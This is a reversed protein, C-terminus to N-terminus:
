AEPEKIMAARGKLTTPLPMLRDLGLLQIDAYAAQVEVTISSGASTSDPDSPNMTVSVAASAIGSNALVTSVRDQVSAVTAGSLAAERAGERAAHDLQISKLVAWGYEVGTFVVVMLLPLTVALEVTEAGRRQRIFGRLRRRVAPLIKRSTRPNSSNMRSMRHKRFEDLVVLFRHNRRLNSPRLPVLGEASEQGAGNICRGSPPRSYPISRYDAEPFRNEHRGTRAPHRQPIDFISGRTATVVMAYLFGAVTVGLVLVVSPQWGLWAGIAMMMKADGAGGGAIIYAALFLGGAIAAGGLSTGLGPLGGTIASYALGGFFLPFTLWNPIRMARLDTITAVLGAVVLLLWVWTPIVPLPTAPTQIALIAHNVHALEPPFM